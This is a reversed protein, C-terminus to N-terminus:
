VEAAWLGIDSFYLGLYKVCASLWSGGPYQLSSSQNEPFSALVRMRHRGATELVDTSTRYGPSVRTPGPKLPLSFPFSLSGWDLDM